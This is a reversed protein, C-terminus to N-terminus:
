YDEDLDLITETADYGNINPAVEETDMTTEEVEESDSALAAVVAGIAFRYTNGVKIYTNRPIHGNRIWARITPVSISLHKALNEIPVFSESM